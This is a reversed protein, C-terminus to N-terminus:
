GDRVPTTARTATAPQDQECLSVPPLSPAALMPPSVPLVVEAADPIDDAEDALVEIDVPLMDLVALAVVTGVAM